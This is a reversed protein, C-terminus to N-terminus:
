TGVVSPIQTQYSRVLTKLRLSFLIRRQANSPERFARVAPHRLLYGQAQNRPDVQVVSRPDIGTGLRDISFGAM